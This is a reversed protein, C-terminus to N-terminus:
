EAALFVVEVHLACEPMHHLGEDAAQNDDKGGHDDIKGIKNRDVRDEADGESQYQDPCGPTSGAVREPNQHFGNRLIDIHRGDFQSRCFDIADLGNMMDVGPRQCRAFYFVSWSQPDLGAAASM